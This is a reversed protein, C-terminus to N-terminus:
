LARVLQNISVIGGDRLGVKKLKNIIEKRVPEYEIKDVDKIGLRDLLDKTRSEVLPRTEKIETELPKIKYPDEPDIKGFIKGQVKTIM